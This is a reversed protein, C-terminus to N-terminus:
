SVTDNKPRDILLHLSKSAQQARLLSVSAPSMYMYDYLSLHKIKFLIQAPVDRCAAYEIWRKNKKEM